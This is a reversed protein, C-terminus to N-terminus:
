QVIPKRKAAKDAFKGSMEKVSIVLDLQVLGTFCIPNSM